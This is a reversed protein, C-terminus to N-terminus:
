CLDIIAEELQEMPIKIIESEGIDKLFIFHIDGSDKKKDKRVADAIDKRRIKLDSIDTSLGYSHILKEIRDRSVTSLFGKSCSYRVAFMMGMAVADGHNITTLSQLAHGITHGFNLKRREGKEFEDMNIINSKIKISDSVIRKIASEDMSLIKSNNIELFNILESGTILSHKIVEALGCSYEKANLTKLFQFNYFIFEPQNFVGIINKYGKLNVGNKGGISADVQALLTTPVFGFDLGRMFTSSAFGAIDCVIGGGIALVFTSRDSEFNLLREYISSVTDLTKINEGTGIIITKKSPFYNDYLNNVNFDTIIVIDKKDHLLERLTKFSEGIILDSTIPM